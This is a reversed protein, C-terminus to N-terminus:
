TPEWARGESARAFRSRTERCDQSAAEDLRRVPGPSAALPSRMGVGTPTTRDLGADNGRLLPGGRPSRAFPRCSTSADPRSGQGMKPVNVYRPARSDTRHVRTSTFWWRTQISSWPCRLVCSRDQGVFLETARPEDVTAAVPARITPVQRRHGPTRPRLPPSAGGIWGCASLRISQVRTRSSPRRLILSCSSAVCVCVCVCVCM